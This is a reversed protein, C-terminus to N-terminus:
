KQSAKDLTALATHYASQAPQLAPQHLPSGKTCCLAHNSTHPTVPSAGIPIENHQEGFPMFYRRNRRHLHDLPQYKCVSNDNRLEYLSNSAIDHYWKWKMIPATLWEGLPPTIMMHQSWITDIALQWMLWASRPPKSQRPWTYRATRHDTKIGDYMNPDITSGDGITIDALTLVNLFMRCCNIKLIDAASMNSEYIRDMLFFDNRRQPTPWAYDGKFQINFYKTERLM